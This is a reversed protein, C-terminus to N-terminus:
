QPLQLRVARAQGTTNLTATVKGEISWGSAAKRLNKAVTKSRNEPAALLRALPRWGRPTVTLARLTVPLWDPDGDGAMDDLAALCPIPIQTNPKTKGRPGRSYDDDEDDLAGAFDLAEVTYYDNMWASTQSVISVTKGAIPDPMKTMSTLRDECWAGLADAEVWVRAGENLLQRRKHVYAMFDSPSELVDALLVLDYLSLIWSKESDGVRRSPSLFASFPDIRELTVTIPYTTADRDLDLPLKNDSKFPKANKIAAITRTNQDNAKNALDNIHREVRRPAARRGERSFRGGKCEVVLTAGPLTVLVDAEADSETDPYTVSRHVNDHGFVDALLQAPLNEAVKQRAKDFTAMLGADPKCITAAWELAGHVFDIPRAFLWEGTSLTLLPSHRLPNDRLLQDEALTGVRTGMANALRSLEDTPINLREALHDELEDHGELRAAASMAFLVMHGGRWRAQQDHTGNAPYPPYNTAMYKNAQDAHKMRVQGYLHAFRLSDTLKFGLRQHCRDDVKTFIELTVRRVHSDFGAMRDFRNELQLMNMMGVHDANDLQGLNTLDAMRQLNAIERLATDIEPVVFPDLSGAINPLIDAEDITAVTGALLEVMADSGFGQSGELASRRFADLVDISGVLRFADVQKLRERLNQIKVPLDRKAENAATVTDNRFQAIQDPRAGTAIINRFELEWSSDLYSYVTHGPSTTTPARAGRTPNQHRTM